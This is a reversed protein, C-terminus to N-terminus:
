SIFIHISKAHVYISLHISHKRQASLGKKPSGERGEGRFNKVAASEAKTEESRPGMYCAGGEGSYQM